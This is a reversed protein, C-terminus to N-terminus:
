AEVRRVVGTMEAFQQYQEETFAEPDVGEEDEGYVRALDDRPDLKDIVARTSTENEDYQTEWFELDGGPIKGERAAEKLFHDRRTVRLEEAAQAGAELAARDEESLSLNAAPPDVTPAPPEPEPDPAPPDSPTPTEGAAESLEEFAVILDEGTFEEELDIGSAELLRITQEENLEIKPMDVSRTDARTPTESEREEFTEEAFGKVIEYLERPDLRVETVEALALQVDADEDDDNADVFDV